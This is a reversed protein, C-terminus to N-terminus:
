EDAKGTANSTANLAARAISQIFGIDNAVSYAMGSLKSGDAEADRRLKGIPNVVDGLAERLRRNEELAERFPTAWYTFDMDDFGYSGPSPAGDGHLKAFARGEETSTLLTTGDWDGAEELANEQRRYLAYLDRSLRRMEVAAEQAEPESSYIAVPWETRDSYEGRTGWVLWLVREVIQEDPM